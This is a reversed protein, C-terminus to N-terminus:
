RLHFLKVEWSMLLSPRLSMGEGPNFPLDASKGYLSLSVMDVNKGLLNRPFNSFCSGLLSKILSSSRQDLDTGHLTYSSVSDNRKMTVLGFLKSNFLNRIIISSYGMLHDLPREEDWIWSASIRDGIPLGKPNWGLGGLFDPVLSLEKIVRVQRPKFLRISQPGLLRAIDLFSDDSVDRWKLQSIVSSSTIIKGGFECLLNSSISKQPSVPCGIYSMFALYSEALQDDLIVVDDGLVYFEGGYPRGLLGLLLVGHTLAFAGFSPYLGLPQGRTWRVEGHNPFYWSAQSIDTFLDVSVKDFMKLLLFRQLDLPFYDTAGSLDISHVMKGQSLRSQLAPVAKGQEFTCDWPLTEIFNYIAKGFPELVRQFVRGPNAVSRLKYGPEQILGIRGALLSGHSHLPYPYGDSSMFHGYDNFLSPELNQLVFKYHSNYYRNLHSVGEFTDYLYRISDVIGDAEDVSGDPLPARKNPSPLMMELPSPNCLKGMRPRGLQRWGKHVLSQAFTLQEPTLPTSQVGALFKEKQKETVQPAYFITYCQLLQLGRSFNAEKRLMWRELDGMVGRLSHKRRTRSIWQSVPRLGAKEHIIDLKIAKIRDVTWEEGSSFYWKGILKRFPTSIKKPIRLAGARQTLGQQLTTRSVKRILM